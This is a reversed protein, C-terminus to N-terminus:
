KGIGYFTGRGVKWGAEDAAASALRLLVTLALALQGVGLMRISNGSRAIQFASTSFFSFVPGAPQATASKFAGTAASDDQLWV